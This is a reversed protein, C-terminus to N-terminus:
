TKMSLESSKVTVQLYMRWYALMTRMLHRRRLVDAQETVQRKATQKHKNALFAKLSVLMLSAQRQEQVYAVVEAQKQLCSSITDPLCLKSNAQKSCANIFESTGDHVCGKWVNRANIVQEIVHIVQEIVDNHMKAHMCASVQAYISEHM